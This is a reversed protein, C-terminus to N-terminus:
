LNIFNYDNWIIIEIQTKQNTSYKPSIDIKQSKIWLIEELAKVTVPKEEQSYLVVSESYEEEINGVWSYFPLFYWMKNLKDKLGWALGPTETANFINILLNESYVQPFDFVTKLYDQIVKYNDPVYKTSGDILLVSMWDFLTRVPVYLYWWKGCFDEWYFCGDNLNSTFINDRDIDKFYLALSVINSLPLDTNINEKLINFLSKIKIPNALIWLSLVKSQIWKIILQQRLSRDFDSTSHRSRAYKLATEWDLTQLWKNISFTIYSYNPWPYTTDVIKEPVEIEIWGITDIAKIFADFDLDIYYQIDMWTIESVVSQLYKLSKEKDHNTKKLAQFYAENLKWSWSTPYNVYLDRPISLLSLYKDEYDLSAVIISDTLDPADNLVGWRWTILFNTKWNEDRKILDDNDQNSNENPDLFELKPTLFDKAIDIKSINSYISTLVIWLFFIGCFLFSYIFILKFITLKTKKYKKPM